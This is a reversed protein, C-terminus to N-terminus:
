PGCPVWWIRIVRLIPHRLSIQGRADSGAIRKTNRLHAFHIRPGHTKVFAPGDFDEAVGLSGTCLTAGNAPLDVANLVLSYDACSSM